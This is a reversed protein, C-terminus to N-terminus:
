FPHVYEEEEEENSEYSDKEPDVFITNDEPRGPFALSSSEADTKM